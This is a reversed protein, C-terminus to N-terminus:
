DLLDAILRVTKGNGTVALPASFRTSGRHKFFYGPYPIPAALRKESMETAQLLYHAGPDIVQRAHGADTRSQRAFNVRSKM